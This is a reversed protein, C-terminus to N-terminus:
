VNQLEYLTCRAIQVAQSVSQRGTQMGAAKEDGLLPRMTKLEDLFAASGSIDTPSIHGYGGLVGDEDLACNEGDEWYDYAREYWRAAGGTGASISAIANTSGGNTTTSKEASGSGEGGEEKESVAQPAFRLIQM